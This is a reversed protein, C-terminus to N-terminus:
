RGDRVQKDEERREATGFRGKAWCIWLGGIDKFVGCNVWLSM